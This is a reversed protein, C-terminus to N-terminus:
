TSSSCSRRWSSTTERRSSSRSSKTTRWRALHRGRRAGDRAGGPGSEELRKRFDACKEKFEKVNDITVLTFKDRVEDLNNDMEECDKRLTAWIDRITNHDSVSAEEMPFDYLQRTRVREELDLYDLEMQM